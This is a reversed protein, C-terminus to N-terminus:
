APSTGLKPALRQWPMRRGKVPQKDGAAPFVVDVSTVKSLGDLSTTIVPIRGSIKTAGISLPLPTALQAYIDELKVEGNAQLRATNFQFPQVVRTTGTTALVGWSLMRNFVVGEDTFIAGDSGFHHGPRWPQHALWYEVFPRRIPDSPATPIDARDPLRGEPLFRTLSEEQVIVVSGDPLEPNFDNGVSYRIETFNGAAVQGLGYRLAAAARRYEQPQLFATDPNPPADVFLREDFIDLGGWRDPALLNPHPNINAM